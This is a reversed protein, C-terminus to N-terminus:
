FTCLLPLTGGPAASIAGALFPEPDRMILMVLCEVLMPQDAFCIFSVASVHLSILRTRLSLRRSSLDDIIIPGLTPTPPYGAWSEVCADETWSKTRSNPGEDHMWDSVVPDGSSFLIRLVQTPVADYLWRLAHIFYLDPDDSRRGSGIGHDHGHSSEPKAFPVGHLHISALSEALSLAEKAIVHGHRFYSCDHFRLGIHDLLTRILCRLFPAPLVANQLEPASLMM